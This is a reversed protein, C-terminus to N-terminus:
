PTSGGPPAPGFPFMPGPTPSIQPPSSPGTAGPEGGPGSPGPEGQPGPPGPEGQPGPPGPPGAKGPEGAPGPPGPPGQIVLPQAAPAGPGPVNPTIGKSLLQGRLLRVDESLDRVLQNLNSNRQDSDDVRSALDTQGAISWGIFVAAAVLGGVVVALVRRRFAAAEPTPM